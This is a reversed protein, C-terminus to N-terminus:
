SGQAVASVLVLLGAGFVLGLVGSGVRLRRLPRADRRATRRESLLTLAGSVLAYVGVVAGVILTPSM